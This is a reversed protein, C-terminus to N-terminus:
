GVITCSLLKVGSPPTDHNTRPTLGSVQYNLNFLVEAIGNMGAGGIGVFHIHKVKHRM